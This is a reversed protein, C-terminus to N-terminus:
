SSSGVGGGVFRCGQVVNIDNTKGEVESIKLEPDCVAGAYYTHLACKQNKAELKFCDTSLNRAGCIQYCTAIQKKSLTPFLPLSFATCPITACDGKGTKDWTNKGTTCPGSGRTEQMEAINMPQYSLETNSSVTLLTLGEILTLVTLTYVTCKM